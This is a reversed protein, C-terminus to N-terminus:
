QATRVSPLKKQSTPVLIKPANTYNRFAAILKTMDTQRDTRGDTRGWAVVRSGSFPNENFIINSYKKFTQRSLELKM